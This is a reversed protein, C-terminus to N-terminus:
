PASRDPRPPIVTVTGKERDYELTAEDFSKDIDRCVEDYTRDAIDWQERVWAEFGPKVALSVKRKRWFSRRRLRVEVYVILAANFALWLLTVMQDSM